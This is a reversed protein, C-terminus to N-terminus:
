APQYRILSGDRATFTLGAWRHAQSYWIQMHVDGTIAFRRETADRGPAIEVPGPGLPTVTPHLLRGNQPNIWPSHLEAENWHTAPLANSPALYRKIKNGTVWLGKRDRVAQMKEHTGDDNTSAALRVVQGSRWQEVGDLRYRFLTIPGFSVAIRVTIRIDLGNPQPTFDLRHFGIASGKRMVRFSIKDSSPVGQM